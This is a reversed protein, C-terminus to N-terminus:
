AAGRAGSPGAAEQQPVVAPQSSVADGRERAQTVRRCGDLVPNFCRTGITTGDSGVVERVSGLHDRTYTYDNAGEEFGEKFYSRVVGGSNRKQCIRSGCWVLTENKTEVSSSLEKIRVRHSEGDYEYVSEHTGELMRVLRNQQDWRYERVVTGNPLKEFRLNGNADYEYTKATGTTPVSYTKTAVNNNGDRAEVVVTNSGADLDVVAEFRYPAGGDTSTVKAPQGNVKVTAPEPEDVFGAFTTKGHDRESVLQNLNNV